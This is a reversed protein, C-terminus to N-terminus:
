PHPQSPMREIGASDILYAANLRLIQACLDKNVKEFTDTTQHYTPNDDFESEITLVCPIEKKLFPVHDSGWYHFSTVSSMSTYRAAIDAMQGAMDANFDATELMVSLPSTKDFGIMDMNIVSRIKALEEPKLGAVYAKSGLIGQEEGLVLLFRINARARLGKVFRALALVGAAGSGNDDAGPAFTSAQPSTCDLHGEVIVEGANNSDFGPFFAELNERPTGSSGFPLRRTTMGLDRLVKECYALAKVAGDSYTYRTKFEVLAKLDNEFAPRDLRELFVDTADGKARVPDPPRPPTLVIRNAPLPDLTTFDSLKSAMGMRATENALLVRFGYGMWVTRVGPFVLEKLSPDRTAFLWAEEGPRLPVAPFDDGKKKLAEVFQSGGMVVTENGLGTFTEGGLGIGKLIEAANASPLVVAWREAALSVVPWLFTCVLFISWFKKGLVMRIMGSRRLSGDKSGPGMTGGLEPILFMIVIIGSFNM